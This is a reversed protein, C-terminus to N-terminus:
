GILSRFLSRLSWWPPSDIPGIMARVEPITFRRDSSDDGRVVTVDLEFGFERVWVEKFMYKDGSRAIYCPQTVVGQEVHKLPYACLMGTDIVYQKVRSDLQDLSVESWDLGCAGRLDGDVFNDIKLDRFLLGLSGSPPLPLDIFQQRREREVAYVRDATQVAKTMESAVILGRQIEKDLDRYTLHIEKNLLTRIMTDLQEPTPTCVRIRDLLDVSEEFSGFQDVVAFTANREDDHKAGRIAYYCGQLERGNTSIRTLHMLLQFARWCTILERGTNVGWFIGSHDLIVGIGLRSWKGEGDTGIFPVVSRPTGDVHMVREAGKSLIHFVQVAMVVEKPTTTSFSLCQQVEKRM